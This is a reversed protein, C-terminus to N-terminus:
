LVFVISLVLFYFYPHWQLWKWGEDSQNVSKRVDRVDSRAGEKENTDFDHVMM